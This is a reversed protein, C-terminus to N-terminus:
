SVTKLRQQLDAITTIPAQCAFNECIYCTAKGDLPRQYRVQEVFDALTLQNASSANTGSANTVSSNLVFLAFPLYAEHVTRMMALLDPDHLEGAIIIEQTPQSLFDFAILMQAFGVPYARVAPAFAHLTTRAAQLYRENGTLKGIKALVTAAISNGSPLAGDYGEKTQTILQEHDHASLTFGGDPAAFLLLMDDCLRTCASLYSTRQTTHYLEFAAWALFAYDDLFGLIGAKGARWRHLLRKEPTTMTTQIFEWAREAAGTYLANDFVRGGIAFAAIILANWDTLVKDDKLPHVRRDREDFLRRRIISLRAQLEAPELDFQEAIDDISRRMHPINEGTMVGSAEDAFNGDPRINYVTCFLTGNEEGLLEMIEQYNWVYFKGERGESDADEACYFGGEPSTMDRLVYTFIEEAVAAYLPNKTLQYAEIYVLAMMAQDYLMKEFHPVLWFRDTSYRHFGYGIHDYVGGKRMEVITREVMDLASQEGTRKYLRLLLLLNQPSPFKPQAGFGGYQPDFTQEYRALAQLLVDPSLENQKSSADTAQKPPSENTTSLRQLSATISNSAQEIQERDTRWAHSIAALISPFGRRNAYDRPPFYTGVFFPKKDPTMFVSLPWGGHGTLAQCAAMYIADIDPREERDIKISVYDANLQAAIDENEFSEREMVHCWHCTAYGISVFVPKNERRAQEFAADCWPQWQVPNHAHQLLYPSQEHILANTYRPASGTSSHAYVQSQEQQEQQSAFEPFFQSSDGQPSSPSTSLPAVM